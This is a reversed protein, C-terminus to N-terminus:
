AFPNTEGYYILGFVAKSSGSQNIYVGSIEDNVAKLTPVLDTYMSASAESMSTLGYYGAKKCVVKAVNADVFVIDAFDTSVLTGAMTSGTHSDAVGDTGIGYISNKFGYIAGIAGGAKKFPIVTDAGNVKLLLQDNTADYAIGDATVATYTNQSADAVSGSFTDIKEAALEDVAEQVDDATLGSSTNDYSVQSADPSAGGAAMESMVTVGTCNTNPVITAGIAIQATAKFLVDNYYFYDGIEYAHTSTATDERSSEINDQLDRRVDGIETTHNGVTTELTSVKGQLTSIDAEDDTQKGTITQIESNISAIDLAAQAAGQAASYLASDVEAFAENTDSWDRKDSGVTQPLNYHTTGTTYSM